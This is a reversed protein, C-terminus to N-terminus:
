AHRSSKQDSRDFVDIAHRGAAALHQFPQEQLWSKPEAAQCARLQSSALDPCNRLIKMYKSSKELYSPNKGFARAEM